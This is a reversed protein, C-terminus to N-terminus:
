NKADSTIYPKFNKDKKQKEYIAATKLIKSTLESVLNGPKETIVCNFQAECKRNFVKIDLADSRVENTLFRISIKISENNVDTSYWDTIIIGGGYNVSALPMFDITDLSARWLENSSAFDFTGNGGKGVNSLRFGRGEEINKKVREEPNPPYKRADAGPLKGGCSSLFIATLFILFLSKLKKAINM